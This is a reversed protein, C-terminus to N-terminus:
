IITTFNKPSARSENGRDGGGAKATVDEGTVLLLGSLLSADGAAILSDFDSYKLLFEPIQL